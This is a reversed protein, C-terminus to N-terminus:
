VGTPEHRVAELRGCRIQSFALMLAVLLQKALNPNNAIQSLALRPANLL